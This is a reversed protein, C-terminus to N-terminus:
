HMRRQLLSRSCTVLCSQCSCFTLCIKEVTGEHLKSKVVLNNRAYFKIVENGDGQRIRRSYRWYDGFEKRDSCMHQSKRSGRGVQSQSVFLAVNTVLSSCHIYIVRPGHDWAVALLLKWSRSSTKTTIIMGHQHDDCDAAKNIGYKRYKFCAGATPAM